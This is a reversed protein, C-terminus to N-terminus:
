HHIRGIPIDIKREARKIGVMQVFRLLGDVREAPIQLQASLTFPRDTGDLRASRRSILGGGLLSNLFDALPTRAENLGEVYRM